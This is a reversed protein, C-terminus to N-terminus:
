GSSKAHATLAYKRTNLGDATTNISLSTQGLISHSHRLAPTGTTTAFALTLSRDNARPIFTFATHPLTNRPTPNHSACLSSSPLLSTAIPALASATFTTPFKFYSTRAAFPLRTASNILSTAPPRGITTAPLV